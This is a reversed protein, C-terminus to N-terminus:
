GSRIVVRRMWASVRRSMRALSRSCATRLQGRFVGFQPLIAVFGPLVQEGTEAHGVDTGGVSM